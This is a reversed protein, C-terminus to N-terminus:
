YGLNLFELYEQKSLEYQEDFKNDWYDVSRIHCPQFDDYDSKRFDYGVYGLYLIFYGKNNHMICYQKPKIEELILNIKKSKSLTKDKLYNYVKVHDFNSKSYKPHMHIELNNRM